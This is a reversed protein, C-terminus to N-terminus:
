MATGEVGYDDSPAGVHGCNCARHLSQICVLEFPWARSQSPPHLRSQSQKRRVLLGPWVQACNNWSLTGETGIGAALLEWDAFAVENEPPYESLVRSSDTHCVMWRSMMVIPRFKFDTRIGTLPLSVSCPLARLFQSRHPGRTRGPLV